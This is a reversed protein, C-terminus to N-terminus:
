RPGPESIHRRLTADEVVVIDGPRLAPKTRAEFTRPKGTGLTVTTVWVTHRRPNLDVPPAADDGPLAGVRHGFTGGLVAPEGHRAVRRVQQVVACRECLAMRAPEDAARVPAAGAALWVAAVVTALGSRM